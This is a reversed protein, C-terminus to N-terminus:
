NESIDEEREIHDLMCSECYCFGSPASGSQYGLHLNCDICYIIDFSM